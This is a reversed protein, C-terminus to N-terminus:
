FTLGDEIPLNNIEYKPKSVKDIIEFYVGMNDKSHIIDLGKFTVYTDIWQKFKKRTLWKRFDQYDTLFEEFIVQNYIRTNTKFHEGEISFEYFESSTKNIFKRVELNKFEHQVLGNALYYQVCDIMFNDFKTWEIDSWEDFLLHNFVQLPTNNANFFSSFEVEFKRREFSGGVGGVTYNTTILIKPSKKVPLKIALQGKRELTIGETILSFLSEFDFNKKVDDFVLIQCDASITQYKFQDGFSFSKGDLSNLKKMQSLANWFLGKGSGGNPTDSITEDNLIIAKNNASTKFSHLLYGIVSRLSNYRQTEENAIYFLFKSFVCNDVKMYTFERDIIQNKWVYGESDIYDIQKVENKSISVIKNKFYLYCNDIDDELLKVEKTELFSLFDFSFYKTKEAMYNFPKMGIDEKFELYNLTYDKIMDKNTEELLNEFIKIFIFGNTGSPYFKFFNREQLFYKFKHQLIQINGKSSYEWFDTISINEKVNEIANEIENEQLDPFQKKIGKIDKGSRIQKEIKDKTFTDEFFKTGFSGTRQYASKIITQIERLPFDDRVYEMCVNECVNKPVGFDNFAIALKFLNNNREGKGMPFKTFWKRLNDVIRNESRIPINVNITEVEYIDPENKEMWTLSDENIHIEPDYSEFCIRSINSCSIDFYKSNYKDKLSEFYLKHNEIENPIKVLCKIGNGSPSTFVSFTYADEILQARFENLLENNEFKDFDLCILGSHEIISADNRQRFTGSFLIAPLKKKLLNQAEVSSNRIQEVLQKSSGKKIRDLIFFIDRNYGASVDGFSKYITIQPM